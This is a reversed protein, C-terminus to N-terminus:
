FYCKDRNEKLWKEKEKYDPMAEKVVDWFKSSHNHEKLHALEHVCIYDLIEEPAFLVRTSININGKSSCSGWNSKNYKLFVNKIDVNFYDKNLKEIKEKIYDLKQKAVVRSILTSIHEKKEEESLSSSINLIINNGSVRASSSNKDKFNINLKYEDNNLKLIDENNYDKLKNEQIPNEKIKNIAWGKFKLIERFQEERNLFRPIRINVGTKGISARSNNRNELYIKIYYVKDNIIINEIRM